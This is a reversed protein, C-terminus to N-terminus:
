LLDNFMFLIQKFLHMDTLLLVYFHVDKVTLLHHLPLSFHLPDCAVDPGLTM